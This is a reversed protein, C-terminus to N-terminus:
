DGGRLSGAAIHQRTPAHSHFGSQSGTPRPPSPAPLRNQRHRAPIDRTDGCKQQQKEREGHDGARGGPKRRRLAIGCPLGGRLVPRQFGRKVLQMEAGALGIMHIAGLDGQDLAAGPKVAESEVGFEGGVASALHLRQM